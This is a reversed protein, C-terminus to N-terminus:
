SRTALIGGFDSEIVIASYTTVISAWFAATMDAANVYDFDVGQTYGSATVGNVGARHGGPVSGKSDIFVFPDSNGDRAFDIATSFLNRAGGNTIAHFDPDHGILFIPGALAQSSVVLSFVLVPITSRM